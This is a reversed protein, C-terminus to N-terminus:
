LIHDVDYKTPKKIFLYQHCLNSELQLTHMPIDLILKYWCILIDKKHVQM